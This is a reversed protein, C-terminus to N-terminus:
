YINPVHFSGVQNLNGASSTEKSSVIESFTLPAIDVVDGQRLLKITLEIHDGHMSKRIVSQNVGEFQSVIEEIRPRAEADIHLCKQAISKLTTLAVDDSDFISSLCRLAQSQEDIRGAGGVHELYQEGDILIELVLLGYTYVDCARYKSGAIWGATDSDGAQQYVEPPRYRQTGWYQYPTEDDNIVVSLGFDTIKLTPDKPATTVLANELKLDGHAIHHVHLSRLGKVTDFALSLKTEMSVPQPVKQLYNRLTGHEAYEVVLFPTTLSSESMEWGFGMMRLINANKRLVPHTAIKIEHLVKSIRSTDEIDSDGTVGDPSLTDKVHKVVVIEGNPSKVKDVVYDAGDGLRAAVLGEEAIDQAFQRLGSASAVQLFDFLPLSPATKEPHKGSSTDIGFNKDSSGLSDLGLQLSFIQSVLSM